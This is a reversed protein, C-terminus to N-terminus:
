GLLEDLKGSKELAFLDDCGGIPQNDIFIQPVTQRGEARKIMEDRREPHEIINIQEDIYVGKQELLALARHCFPCTPKYYIEVKAM